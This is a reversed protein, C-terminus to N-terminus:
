VDQISKLEQKSQSRIQIRNDIPKAISNIISSNSVYAIRNHVKLKRYIKRIRSISQTRMNKTLIMMM